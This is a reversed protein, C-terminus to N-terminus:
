LVGEALDVLLVASHADEAVVVEQGRTEAVLLKYGYGKLDTVRKVDYRIDGVMVWQETGIPGWDRPVDDRDLLVSRTQTQFIGGETFDRSAALYALDFAFASDIRSSLVVGRNIRARDYTITQRGTEVDVHTYTIKFLDVRTPEAM